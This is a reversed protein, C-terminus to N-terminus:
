GGRWELAKKQLELSTYKDKLDSLGGAWSQRLFTKPKPPQQEVLTRAYEAVERQAEPPLRRLLAEIEVIEPSAAMDITYRPPPTKPPNLRSTITTSLPLHILAVLPSEPM